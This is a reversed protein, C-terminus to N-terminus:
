FFGPNDFTFNPDFELEGFSFGSNVNPSNTASTAPSSIIGALESEPGQFNQNGWNSTAPSVFSPSFNGAANNSTSPFYFSPFTNERSDLDETTVRLSGTQFSLLIEGPEQQHDHESTHLPEQIEPSSPPPTLHSGQGCTHRGRYTIEFMTPDEDSRQVQKTALCGQVHRHTCRYYGRPFKAGLIDKQGYKRWSYGDDLPGGLGTGPCVQVQQTWRPTSSSKRKRSVSDKHEPDQIDRDSDESHPSGSFSRPSDSVAILTGITQQEGGGGATGCKLMSLAKDLSNLITSVLVQRTEHSSSPSNLHVQLQRALERGQKLERILTKQEWEGSNEM